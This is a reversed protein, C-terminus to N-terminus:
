TSSEVHTVSVANEPKLLLAASYTGLMRAPIHITIDSSDSSALKDFCVGFQQIVNYDAKKGTYAAQLAEAGRFYAISASVNKLLDLKHSLSKSQFGQYASKFHKIVGVPRGGTRKFLNDLVEEPSTYSKEEEESTHTDVAAESM